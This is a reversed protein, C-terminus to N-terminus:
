CQAGGWLFFVIHLHFHLQTEGLHPIHSQLTDRSLILCHSGTSEPWTHAQQTAPGSPGALAERYDPVWTHSSLTFGQGRLIVEQDLLGSRVSGGAKTAGPFEQQQSWSQPISIFTLFVLAPQGEGWGILRVLPLSVLKLIFINPPPQLVSTKM